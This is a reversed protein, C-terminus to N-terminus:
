GDVEDAPPAQISVPAGFGSLELTVTGSGQGGSDFAVVAKVPRLDDKRTWIDLTGTGSASPLKPGLGPIESGLGASPTAVDPSALGPLQSTLGGLVGLDSASLQLTVHYCDADGCRVDADKTPPTTLRELSARLQAIVVQPDGAAPGVANAAQRRYKGGAGLPGIVKTYTNGDVVILDAGTGFLAPAALTLHARRGAVDIDGQITTGSLDLRAGGAGGAAGLGDGDGGAQSGESGVPGLGAGGVLGLGVSGAVTGDVHFTGADQLSEVSRVLIDKPDTLTPTVQGGCAGAIVALVSLLGAFRRVM